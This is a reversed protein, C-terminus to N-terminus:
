LCWDCGGDGCGGAAVGVLGYDAAASGTSLTGEAHLMWGSGPQAARSYVAVPRYGTEGAADVVVQVHVVGAAPVPLPASLTLEEIVPCGVEDGARLVLEVFGAGPFLVTGAVAHDALWPQAATSLRGTLM